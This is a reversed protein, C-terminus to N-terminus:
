SKSSGFNFEGNILKAINRDRIINRLSNQRRNGGETHYPELFGPYHKKIALLFRRFSELTFKHKDPQYKPWNKIMRKILNELEDDIVRVKPSDPLTEEYVDRVQEPTTLSKESKGSDATININSGLSNHEEPIPRGMQAPTRGMQAPTNLTLDRLIPYYELAQDSLSYWNTNDYKKHNFNGILVLGLKVCKAVITRIVKPTWGPFLKAFAPYSNFSWYRGEFFNRDEPKDKSINFRLWSVLNEIFIAVNADRTDIFLKENFQTIM